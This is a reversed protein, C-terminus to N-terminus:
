PNFSKISEQLNEEDPDGFADESDSLTLIQAPEEEPEPEGQEEAQEEPLEELVTAPDPPEPFHRTAQHRGNGITLYLIHLIMHTAEIARGPPREVLNM